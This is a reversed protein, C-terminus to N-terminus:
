PFSRSGHLTSRVKERRRHQLRAGAVLASLWLLIIQVTLETSGALDDSTAAAANPQLSFIINLHLFHQSTVVNETGDLTNYCPVEVTTTFTSSILYNRDPNRRYNNSETLAPGHVRVMLYRLKLM